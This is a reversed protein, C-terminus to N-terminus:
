RGRRAVSPPAGQGDPDRRGGLAGRHGLRYAFQEIIRDGALAGIEIGGPRHCLLRTHECVREVVADTLGLRQVAQRRDRVAGCVGVVRERHREIRAVQGPAHACRRHLHTRDVQDAEDVVVGAVVGIREVRGQMREFQVAQCAEGGTLARQQVGDGDDVMREAVAVPCQDGVLGREGGVAPRAAGVVVHDRHRVHGLHTGLAVLVQEGDAEPFRREFEGPHVEVVPHRADEGLQRRRVAREVCEILGLRAQGLGFADREVLAVRAGRGRRHARQRQGPRLQLAGSAVGSSGDFLAVAREGDGDVVVQELELQPGVGLEGVQVLLDAVVLPRQEVLLGAELPMLHQEALAGIQADLGQLDGVVGLGCALLGLDEAQARAFQFFEHPAARVVELLVLELRELTQGDDSLEAVGVRALVRHPHAVHRALDGGFQAFAVLEGVAQAQGPTQVVDALHGDGVGDQQLGAREGRGLELHHLGVGRDTGLDQRAATRREDLESSLHCQVM